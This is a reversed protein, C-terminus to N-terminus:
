QQRAIHMTQEIFQKQHEPNDIEEALRKSFDKIREPSDPTGLESVADEYIFGSIPGLADQLKEKLFDLEASFDAKSEQPTLVLESPTDPESPLNELDLSGLRQFFNELSLQFRNKPPLRFPHCRYRVSSLGELAPLAEENEKGDYQLAVIEGGEIILKGYEQESKFFLVTGKNNTKAFFLVAIAFASIPVNKREKM